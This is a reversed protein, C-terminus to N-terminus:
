GPTLDRIGRRAILRRFRQLLRYGAALREDEELALQLAKQEEHDLQHPPRLCLWRLSLRKARRPRGGRRRSGADAQPPPRPGRWPVLARYMLSRSGLYGLEAIERHLQLINSCGAQWRTQLYALYPLLSPSSLGGPRSPEPPCSEPPAAMSPSAYPKGAPLGDHGSRWTTSSLAASRHRRFQQCCLRM